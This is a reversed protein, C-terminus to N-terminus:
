PENKVPKQTNNEFIAVFAGPFKRDLRKREKEAETLTNFKGSYYRTYEGTKIRFIQTEGMFNAPTPDPSNKMAAIQVSYFKSDAAQSDTTKKKSLDQYDVTHNDKKNGSTNLTFHSKEETKKRYNEFANFISKAIDERGKESMLYKREAPNSLFGAEVLVAPMTVQRLVLFGAQRVSRDHRNANVRFQDQIVSAFLVSQELYEDQVLEFMIYSEPLNPDFGEYRTTYDDELLIVANEKKAVELNDSTRHQGLVYTETGQVSGTNVYNAHISIFLDAKNRNALRSREHLPVFVDKNRTYIVKIDPNNNKILNGLKLSIDLVIEKELANGSVAGPDKGGHGPDIVVVALKKGTMDQNNEGDVQFVGTLLFICSFFCNIRKM